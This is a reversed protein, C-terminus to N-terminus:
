TRSAGRYENWANLIPAVIVTLLVKNQHIIASAELQREDKRLVTPQNPRSQLQYACISEVSHWNKRPM